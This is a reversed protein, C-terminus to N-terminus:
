PGMAEQFLAVLWLVFMLCFGIKLDCRLTKLFELASFPPLPAPLYSLSVASGASLTPDGTSSVSHTQHPLGCPCPTPLMPDHNTILPGGEGKDAQLGIFTVLFWM